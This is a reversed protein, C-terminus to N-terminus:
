RAARDLDRDLADLEDAVMRATGPDMARALARRAAASSARAEDHRGELWALGASALPRQYADVFGGSSRALWAGAAAADRAYRAWCWALDLTIMQRMGDPFADVRAGAQHAARMAADVEGRDLSVRMSQLWLAVRDRELTTEALAAEIEAPDTDRPRMGAMGRMLLAVLRARRAPTEGGRLLDLAQAGDSQFGGTAIPILTAVAILLSTVGLVLGTPMLAGGGRALQLGVVGLALSAVPGGLVVVLMERRFDAGERPLAAALGGWTAWARNFSWELGAGGRVVRLPGALLILFRWGVLRGGLVHGAEHVLIVLWVTFPLGLLLAPLGVRDIAAAFAASRGVTRGVLLGLGLAGVMFAALLVLRAANGSRPAAGEAGPTQPM